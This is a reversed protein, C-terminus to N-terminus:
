LGSCQGVKVGAVNGGGIPAPSNGQCVLFGGIHNGAVENVPSTQNNSDVLNGGITNGDASGCVSGGLRISGFGPAGQVSFDGNVTSGCAVVKILFNGESTEFDVPQALDVSGGVFVRTLQVTAQYASLQGSIRTGNAIFASGPHVTVDGGVRGGLITCRAGSPVDVADTAINAVTGTCTTAAAAPSASICTWTIMPALSLVAIFARRLM